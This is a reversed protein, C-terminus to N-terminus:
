EHNHHMAITVRKFEEKFLYESIYSLWYVDTHIIITANDVVDDKCNIAIPIEAINNNITSLEIVEEMQNNLEIILLCQNHDQEYWVHIVQENLDAGYLKYIQPLIDLRETEFM